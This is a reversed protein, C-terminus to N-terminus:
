MTASGSSGRSADPSRGGCFRESEASYVLRSPREEVEWSTVRYRARHVTQVLDKDGQMLRAYLKWVTGADCDSVGLPLTIAVSAGNISFICTSAFITAGSNHFLVIRDQLTDFRLPVLRTGNDVPDTPTGLVKVASRFEGFYHDVDNAKANDRYYRALTSRVADGFPDFVARYGLMDFWALFGAKLMAAVWDFHRFQSQFGITWKGSWRPDDSPLEALVRVMEGELPSQLRTFKPSANDFATPTVSFAKATTGDDFRVQFPREHKFLAENTCSLENWYRVVAPEVRSGFFHDIRGYQVVTKRSAERLKKNLIHGDVLEDESCERLTVPCVFRTTVRGTVKAYDM